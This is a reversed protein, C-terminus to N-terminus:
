QIYLLSLWTLDIWSFFSFSNPGPDCNKRKKKSQKAWNPLKKFNMRVQPICLSDTTFVATKPLMRGDSFLFLFITAVLECGGLACGNAIYITTTYFLLSFENCLFGFLPHDTSVPRPYLNWSFFSWTKRITKEMQQASKLSWFDPSLLFFLKFDFLNSVFDPTCNLVKVHIYM